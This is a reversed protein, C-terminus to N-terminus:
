EFYHHVGLGGHEKIGDMGVYVWLPISNNFTKLIKILSQFAYLEEGGGGGKFSLSEWYM